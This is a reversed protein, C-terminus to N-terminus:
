PYLKFFLYLCWGVIGLVAIGALILLPKVAPTVVGAGRGPSVRPRAPKPGPRAPRPQSPPVVVEEKTRTSVEPKSRPFTNVANPQPPLSRGAPPPESELQRGIERVKDIYTPMLTFFVGLLVGGLAEVQFYVALITAIASCILHPVIHKIALFYKKM